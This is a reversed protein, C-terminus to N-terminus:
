SIRTISVIPYNAVALLSVTTTIVRQEENSWYSTQVEVIQENRSLPDGAMANVTFDRRRLDEVIDSTFTVKDPHRSDTYSGDIRFTTIEVARHESIVTLTGHKNMQLSFCPLEGNGPPMPLQAPAAAAAKLASISADELSERTFHYVLGFIVCLMVALVAMTICIFKARLRRIM